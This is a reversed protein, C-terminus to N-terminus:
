IISPIAYLADGHSCAIISSLHIHKNTRPFDLPLVALIHIGFACPLSSGLFQSEMPHAHMERMVMDAHGHDMYDHKNGPESLSKPGFLKCM